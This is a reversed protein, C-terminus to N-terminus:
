DLCCCVRKASLRFDIIKKFLGKDIFNV